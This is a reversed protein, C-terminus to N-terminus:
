APHLFPPVKGQPLPAPPPPPPDLVAPTTAFAVLAHQSNFLGGPVIITTLFSPCSPQRGIM